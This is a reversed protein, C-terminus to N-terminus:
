SDNKIPMRYAFFPLDESSSSAERILSHVSRHKKPIEPRDQREVYM